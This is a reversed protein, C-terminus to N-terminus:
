KETSSERCPLLTNQDRKLRKSPQGTPEDEGFATFGKPQKKSYELFPSPSPPTVNAFQGSKRQTFYYNVKLYLSHREMFPDTKSCPFMGMPSQEPFHQSFSSLHHSINGSQPGMSALGPMFPQMFDQEINPFPSFATSPQSRPRNSRPMLPRLLEYMRKQFIIIEQM